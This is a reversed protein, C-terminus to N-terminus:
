RGFRNEVMLFVEVKVEIIELNHLFLRQPEPLAICDLVPVLLPEQWLM